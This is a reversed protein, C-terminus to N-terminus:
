SNTYHVCWNFPLIFSM